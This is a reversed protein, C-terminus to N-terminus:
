SNRREELGREADSRLYLVDSSKKGMGATATSAM